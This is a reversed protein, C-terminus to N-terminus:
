LIVDYAGWGTGILTRGGPLYDYLEGNTTVGASEAAGDSNLDTAYPTWYDGWWGNGNFYRAGFSITGGAPTTNPYVYLEGQDTRGMIDAKYDGNLDAIRISTWSAPWWGNGSFQRSGFTDTGGNGTGPYVWLEGGSDRGLIDTRGDATIDGFALTDYTNWGNGLYSPSGFSNTGTGGTGPYLYLEGSRTRGVIDTRGDNDLDATYANTWYDRWWGNGVFDRTGLTNTGTGGTGRYVWMDGHADRALVDTFGDGNYDPRSQSGSTWLGKGSADFIALVGRDLVVAYSNANHFTNSSWLARSGDATYVVLNGDPQMRAVAGPNGNTNSAWLPQNAATYLVLNGDAQMTLKAKGTTYSQGSALTTGSTIRAGAVGDIVFGGSFSNVSGGWAQGYWGFMTGDAQRAWLDPVNDGTVDGVSGVLPYADESVGHGVETRPESGWTALDVAKGDVAAKGYSRLIRGDGNHRLWLDPVGDGNLDGPLIVTFLDWDQGGVLVPAGFLDLNGSRSGLYAWLRKGQKVMLDPQGDLNLDGPTIIQQADQWHDDGEEFCANEEDQRPCAVTLEKRDLANVRGMGNNNYARLRDINDVPDHELTVLDNYGDEGWDGSYATVPKALSMGGSTAASFKANGQGAWTLLSGRPDTTWIDPRSDGNLDGAPDRDQSRAAYFLYTATDSRNGAADQSFAYVFHPGVGPPTLQVSASAGAAVWASHVAPDWDTYYGYWVVDAVGNASLTFGGPTRAKGTGAPWGDNGNPFVASEIKPAKVPRTRDVSFKCTTSWGSYDRQDYARVQWTYDGTPLESDPVVLTSVRGKLAPIWRDVVLTGGRFVQFQASLNGANPDDVTAYLSVTTNGILGGTSCDTRPNTGLGSPTQPPDNYVTELVASKPDFKKWGFTDSENEAYLGVTMSPEHAAAIRQVKWTVDFELNGGPCSSSSWGKADNVTGLWDVKDPQNNWTTRDSIAKTHWLQVPRDQCSWSWVNNIRFTSSIVNAGAINATDLQFFSRSLGNTENEYGVRAVENANWYSNGPWKKYVRTWNQRGGWAWTPDIYVPYRTDAAKLLTQDPTIELTNGAVATPMVAQKSGAPQEFASGPTSAEAAAARPAVAGAGSSKAAAGSTATTSDWMLPSPSTFVTRGAPDSAEVAGTAPDTTVTVGVTSMAYKLTALEPNAAAQATKVVVLQSFGEVEAKLQLDVGPLVEPYTAVNGSLTPTPLAKPWSLALTRGDKVGSLLPGTGGGSFTITVSSAKPRVSGDPAFVLTPDAPIWAGGRLVRVPAGYRKM